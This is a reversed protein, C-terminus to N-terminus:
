VARLELHHEVLAYIPKVVIVLGLDAPDVFLQSECRIMARLSAQLIIHQRKSHHIRRNGYRLSAM